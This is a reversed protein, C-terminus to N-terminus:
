GEMLLRLQRSEARTLRQRVYGVIEDALQRCGASWHRAGRLQMVCSRLGHIQVFGNVGTLAADLQRFFALEFGCGSRTALEDLRIEARLHRHAYSAAVATHGLALLVVAVLQHLEAADVVRDTIEDCVFRQVAAAVAEALWWDAVGAVAAAETLEGTLRDADLTTLRGDARRIWAIDDRIQIM